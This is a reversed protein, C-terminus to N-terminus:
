RSNAAVNDGPRTPSVWVETWWTGCEPCQKDGPQVTYSTTGTAEHCLRHAEEIKDTPSQALDSGIQVLYEGIRSGAIIRDQDPTPHDCETM